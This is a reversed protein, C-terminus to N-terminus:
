IDSISWKLRDKVTTEANELPFHPSMWYRINCDPSTGELNYIFIKFIRGTWQETSSDIPRCICPTIFVNRWYAESIKFETLVSQAFNYTNLDKLRWIEATQVYNLGSELAIARLINQNLDSWAGYLLVPNTRLETM